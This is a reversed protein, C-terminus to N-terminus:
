LLPTNVIVIIGIFLNIREGIKAIILQDMNLIQRFMEVVMSLMYIVIGM